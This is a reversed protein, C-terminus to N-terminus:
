AADDWDPAKDPDILRMGRDLGRIATMDDASLNVSLSAYNERLRGANSSAPIVIHGEEMLFALAVAAATVGHRTAIESLLPDNSVRGKALPMYATLPMGIGRAHDRLKPSQLFPHIEVQDTALVGKGLLAEARKLHGIPFNSVGINRAFGRAKAEALAEMYDEFPVADKASPWHILLLDVHDLALTELSKEVSPMFDGKALNTDAVKTTVFFADRALGSRAIARGVNEETGYSQATDIHRYGIEIASLLATLGDEGTRGFTGLGLKPITTNM